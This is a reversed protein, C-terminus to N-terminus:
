SLVGVNWSDVVWGHRGHVLVGWHCNRLGAFSGWNGTSLGLMRAVAGRLAGGHSSIVLVGSDTSEAHEEIAAAARQAVQSRTEGGGVPIDDGRTWAALDDPWQEAIQARSLGQWRGAHVERLRTDTEVPLGTVRALAAMTDAARSLDSSVLRAPSLKSLVEAAVEAQECGVEDLPIDLQGQWLGAANSATRGHRWLVVKDAAMLAAM